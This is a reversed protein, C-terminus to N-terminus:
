SLGNPLFWISSCPVQEQHQTFAEQLEKFLLGASQSSQLLHSNLFTQFDQSMSILGAMTQSERTEEDKREKRREEESKVIGERM